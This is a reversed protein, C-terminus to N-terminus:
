KNIQGKIQVDINVSNIENISLYKSRDIYRFSFFYILDRYTKLGLEQFLLKSKIPGVGKLFELSNDFFTNIM